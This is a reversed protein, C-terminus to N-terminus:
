RLIFDSKGILSGDDSEAEYGGLVIKTVPLSKRIEPLLKKIYSINFIYCSFALVDPASNIIYALTKEINVNVNTEYIEVPLPSNAALYRPALLTHVYSSSLAVFLTKMYFFADKGRGFFRQNRSHRRPVPIRRRRYGFIRREARRRRGFGFRRIRRM